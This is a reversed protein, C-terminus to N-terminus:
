LEGRIAHAYLQLITHGVNDGWNVISLTPEIIASRWPEELTFAYEVLRTCSNIAIRHSSETSRLITSFLEYDHNVTYAALFALSVLGSLLFQEFVIGTTVTLAICDYLFVPHSSVTDVLASSLALAIAYQGSEGSMLVAPTRISADRDDDVDVVDAAHSLSAISLFLAACQIWDPHVDGVSRWIPVLYIAITWLAAVFFPKSPALYPKLRAYGLHLPPVLPALVATTSSSAYFLTSAIAALRTSTVRWEESDETLRDATYIAECVAFNNAITALDIHAGTHTHVGYQILTLPIGISLGGSRM